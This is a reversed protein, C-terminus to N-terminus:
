PLGLIVKLGWCTSGHTHQANSFHEALLAHGHDLLADHLAFQCPQGDLLTQALETIVAPWDTPKRFRPLLHRQGPLRNLAQSVERPLTYRDEPRKALMRELIALMAPPVDQRIEEVPRPQRTLHWVLKKDYDGEPLPSQGTLCFYFVYGLSYIDLRIDMAMSDLAQEPAIYDLLDPQREIDKEDYGGYGTILFYRHLGPELLQVVGSRSVLLSRPRLGQHLLGAEHVKQLGDAAQAIYGAALQPELPGCAAVLTHLSWGDVYDAALFHFGTDQEVGRLRVLHPGSTTAAARAERRFRELQQPEEVTTAPLIKLVVPNGTPATSHRALYSSGQEDCGLRDLLTYGGLRFQQSGGHLLREAQFRTLFGSRVLMAALEVPTPPEANPGQEARELQIFREALLGSDHVRQLFERAEDSEAM